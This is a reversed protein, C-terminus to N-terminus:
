KVVVKATMKPHISCYYEYTGPKDFKYSFKDDTDLAKSKFVDNTSTVTHPLDDRNVWTVLTGATVSIDQPMFSFNDIKIEPGESRAQDQDVSLRSTVLGYSSIGLGLSGLLAIGLVKSISKKM